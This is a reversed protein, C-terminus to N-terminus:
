TKSNLSNKKKGVGDIIYEPLPTPKLAEVLDDVTKFILGMQMKQIM